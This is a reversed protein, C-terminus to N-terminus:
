TAKCFGACFVNITGAAFLTYAGKVLKNYLDRQLLVMTVAFFAVPLYDMLAMPISFEYM